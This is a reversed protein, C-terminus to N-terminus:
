VANIGSLFFIVGTRAALFGCVTLSIGVFCVSIGTLSKIINKDLYKTGSIELAALKYKKPNKYNILSTDISQAESFYFSFLFGILLLASLKKTFTM